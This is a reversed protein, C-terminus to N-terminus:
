LKSTLEDIVESVNKLRDVKYANSGCFLLGNEIDGRVADILAKSICYPTNSPNCPILCNYCKKIKRGESSVSEIFSNGIARGPMGVPSKVIKIDDQSANVYTMKYEYAADCEHTAVFKTGVQVGSAGMDIYKKVDDGTFIGGAAIVPINKNFKDGYNKAIDLIKIFEGDYDINDINDLEDNHYGLHGGAKPGEVVILDATTNEKRDWMKLIVGLAKSTSVIPAIKVSSDKVLKPLATPLGAGSIILDVGSEICTKVHDEYYNMAVMLNVGIIGGKSIEKAKLIHKKLARLNAKLPNIEFDDEDYGVQAGSIVGVGGCSAVAGALSSRSVGVGMGGQVVPVKAILDGIILPKM